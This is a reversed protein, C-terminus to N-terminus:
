CAINYCFLFVNDLAKQLFIWFGTFSDRAFITQVREECKHMDHYLPSVTFSVSNFAPSLPTSSAAGSTKSGLSRRGPPRTCITMVRGSSETTVAPLACKARDPSRAPCIITMRAGVYFRASCRRGLKKQFARSFFKGTHYLLETTTFM